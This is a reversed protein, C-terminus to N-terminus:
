SIYRRICGYVEIYDPNEYYPSYPLSDPPYTHSQVRGLDAVRESSHAEYAAFTVDGTYAEDGSTYTGYSVRQEDVVIFIDADEIKQPRMMYDMPYESGYGIRLAERWGEYWLVVVTDGEHYSGARETQSDLGPMIGADVEFQVGGDASAPAVGNGSTCLVSLFSDYLRLFRLVEDADTFYNGAQRLLVSTDM